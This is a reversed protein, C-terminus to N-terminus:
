PAAVHALAVLLQAARVLRGVILRLRKAGLQVIGDVIHGLGHLGVGKIAIAALLAGVLRALGHTAAQHEAIIVWAIHVNALLDHGLVRDPLTADKVDVAQAHPQGVPARRQAVHNAMRAGHGDHGKGVIAADAQHTLITRGQTAHGHLDGRALEVWALVREIAGVALKRFLRAHLGLAHGEQGSDSRAHPEAVLEDVEVHGRAQGKGGRIGIRVLEDVHVQHRQGLQDIRHEIAAYLVGLRHDAGQDAIRHCM